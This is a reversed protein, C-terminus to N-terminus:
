GGITELIVKVEDVRVGTKNTYSRQYLSGKVIINMGIKITGKLDEAQRDTVVIQYYGRSTKSYAKQEVSLTFELLALGSPSYALQGVRSIKGALHVQNM